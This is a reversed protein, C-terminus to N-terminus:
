PKPRGDLTAGSALLAAIEAESLGAEHLVELSQEGIKPAHRFDRRVGRSLKNPLKM